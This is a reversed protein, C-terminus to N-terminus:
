GPERKGETPRRAPLLDLIAARAADDLRSWAAIEDLTRLCGVCLGSGADLRCVNICPSAVRTVGTAASAPLSASM